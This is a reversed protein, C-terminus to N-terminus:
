KSLKALYIFQFTTLTPFIKLSHGLGTPIIKFVIYGTQEFLEGGSKKSFFRLHDQSLIGGDTYDFHGFLLKLRIEFRGINPLSCIIIGTPKLLKKVKLLLLDPRPLHELIDSFVIYDYRTTLKLNKPSSLDLQYLHRYYPKAKKLAQQNIDIGDIINKHNLKKGLMGTNCGVDLITTGPLILKPIIQHPSHASPNITILGDKNFM